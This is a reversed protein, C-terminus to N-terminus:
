ANRPQWSADFMCFNWTCASPSMLMLIRLPQKDALVQLVAIAGQLLSYACTHPRTNSSINPSPQLCCRCPEGLVARKCRQRSSRCGSPGTM